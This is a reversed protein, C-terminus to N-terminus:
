EVIDIDWNKWYRNGPKLELEKIYEPLEVESDTLCIWCDAISEPIAALLHIGLRKMETQPHIHIGSMGAGILDYRISKVKDRSISYTKNEM